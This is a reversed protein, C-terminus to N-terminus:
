ANSEEKYTAAEQQMLVCGKPDAELLEVYLKLGIERSGENFAMVLADSNFASRFVGCSGIHEWLFRRGHPVSMISRLDNARQERLIQDKRKRGKVQEVDGTDLPVTPEAM